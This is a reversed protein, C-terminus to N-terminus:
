VATDCSPILGKDLGKRNSSVTFVPFIQLLLYKFCCMYACVSYLFQISYNHLNKAANINQMNKIFIHSYKKGAFM